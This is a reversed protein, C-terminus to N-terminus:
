GIIKQNGANGHELLAGLHRFTRALCERAQARDYPHTDPNNMDRAMFEFLYELTTQSGPLKGDPTRSEDDLDWATAWIVGDPLLTLDIDRLVRVAVEDPIHDEDLDLFEVDGVAETLEAFYACVESLKM